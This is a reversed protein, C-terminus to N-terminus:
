RMENYMKKNLNILEQLSKNSIANGYVRRIEMIDRALLSRPNNINTNRSVVNGITHGNSPVLIAPATRPNYNSVIKKMVASQGVHHAQLGSGRAVQKLSNYSGVMGIKAGVNMVHSGTKVVSYTTKAAGVGLGVFPMAAALHIASEGYNGRMASIASNAVDFANGIVPIMGLPWKLKDANIQDIISPAKSDPVRISFTYGDIKTPSLKIEHGYCDGLVIGYLLIIQILVTLLFKM